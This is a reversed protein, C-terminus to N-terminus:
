LFFWRKLPLLSSGPERHSLQSPLVGSDFVHAPSCVGSTSTKLRRGVSQRCIVVLSNNLRTAPFTGIPDLSTLPQVTSAALFLGKAVRDLEVPDNGVRAILYRAYEVSLGYKGVLQRVEYDQDAAVRSRDPEGVKSKDDPM